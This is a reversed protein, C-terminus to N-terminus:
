VVSKRDAQLRVRLTRAAVEVEKLGGVHATSTANWLVAVRSLRPAIEKLLELQKAIIDRMSSSMGTVNAGLRALSAILRVGVPDGVLVLVIPITSTAEKAALAAPTGPAVILDVKLNVLETAFARYRENRGEPSRREIIM